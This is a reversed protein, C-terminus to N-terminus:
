QGTAQKNRHLDTNPAVAIGDKDTVGSWFVKNQADRISVNADAVPKADELRTVLVLTNQPSDKVSINLNTSQVVTSVISPDYIKSKPM